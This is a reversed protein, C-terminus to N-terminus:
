EEEEKPYKKDILKAGYKHVKSMFYAIAMCATESNDTTEVIQVACASALCDLFVGNEFTGAVGSKVHVPDSDGNEILMQFMAEGKTDDVLEGDNFIMTRVMKVKGRKENQYYLHKKMESFKMIM